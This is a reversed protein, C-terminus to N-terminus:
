SARKELRVRARYLDVASQMGMWFEPTMDFRRALRVAMEATVGRHGNVIESVTRFSVGLEHALKEQSLGETEEIIERLLVGPGSPERKRQKVM